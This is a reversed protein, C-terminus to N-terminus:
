VPNKTTKKPFKTKLNVWIGKVDIGSRDTMAMYTLGLGIPFVVLCPMWAALVADIVFREAINKSFITVMVFLVFFIVSILLPWGFGGKKVIAGMPAGVFLFIFCALAMSFKYHLEFVHKVRNEKIRKLSKITSDTTSHISRASTKAKEYLKKMDKAELTKVFSKYEAIPKTLKQTVKNQNTRNKKSQNNKKTTQKSKSTKKNTKKPKQTKKKSQKKETKKVKKTEKKDSNAGYKELDKKQKEQLKKNREKQEERKKQVRAQNYFHFYKDANAANSEVKANIRNDISDIATVLQRSSLMSHHSKFLETDTRDMSFETLDFVKNWERFSTRVFPYNEKGEKKTPKSENYQTGNFLEMVFFQEDKTSYMFGNDATVSILRGQGEDRHDYLLVDKISMNDPLKEGIRISYGQFDDNFLGEEMSMTPKQKRIDYLRSKFQLNSIPILNNSCFFSLISVAFVVFMLPIMVRWLSIGASKISSLEYEEAMNGLVMVSSILVAIPLAMPIMSVSMYAVLEVLLFFGVGKGAIDDIYVWLTQMVLVFLAIFFTAVFPPLFSTVV